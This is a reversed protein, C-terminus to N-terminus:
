GDDGQSASEESRRMMRPFRSIVLVSLAVSLVLPILFLYWPAFGTVAAVACLVALALVLLAFVTYAVFAFPHTYPNDKMLM